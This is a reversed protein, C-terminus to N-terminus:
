SLFHFQFIKFHFRAFYYFPITQFLTTFKFLEEYCQLDLVGLQEGAVIKNKRMVVDM